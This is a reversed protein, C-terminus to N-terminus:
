DTQRFRDRFRSTCISAILCLGQYKAGTARSKCSQAYAANIMPITATIAARAGTPLVGKSNKFCYHVHLNVKSQKTWSQDDDDDPPMTEVIINKVLLRVIERKLEFPPDDLVKDQLEKLLAAANDQKMTVTVEETIQHDLEELRDELAKKELMMEQLQKELDGATIMKKRYLTLLDHRESDKNVISARLMEREKAMDLQVVQHEKKDDSLEDLIDGPNMIFSLCQKWVLDEIWKQPINKSVCKSGLEGRYATKGGCIYYVSKEDGGSGRFATGHYSLGCSGCKILGRLLYDRTANGPSMFANERLTEQALDWVYDTVSAPMSREILERVKSSRRGYIHLGKYITSTAMNYIRGPTWIGATKQKRKGVKIMRGDRVYSTPIQLSNFYDAVRVTSWKHYALLSYMLQVVGLETLDPKGPIPEESLELYSETNKRYGYPVIGGLWKGKRAARNAGLWLQELTTERDLEAVGALITLLFRGQPDGTDFPETMSRIKVGFEELKHISNLIDRATRGLRKINYILVLKVKGARADEILRKGDPREELPIKGSVGDDKYWDDIPLRHLDCYKTGFEVQSDITEREQQDESSVRCYIRVGYLPFSPDIM